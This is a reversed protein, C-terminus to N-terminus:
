LEAGTPIFQRYPVYSSKGRPTMLAQYMRYDISQSVFRSGGDAFSMNVGDSHASSPRAYLHADTATMGEIFIDRDNLQGNIHMVDTASTSGNFTSGRKDRYHWVFGQTLQSFQPYDVQVKTSVTALNATLVAISTAANDRDPYLQNWQIAQLNESFLAQNGQGDKIDDIRFDPGKPRADPEAATRQNNYDFKNNIPGNEKKMAIAFYVTETPTGGAISDSESRAVPSGGSTAAYPGDLRYMGCNAVYSNRGRDGALNPSSPCQMIALNPAANTTFATTSSKTTVLPYKDQTWIEYTAQSDLQPLLTVVWSGIKKHAAATATVDEPDSPDVAVGTGTPVVYNGFDNVWGPFSKHSMEYQIAAKALNNLQTSCQNRRATERAAQVAPILLGMLIGIITIVVLLEVLTFGSRAEQKNGMSTTM